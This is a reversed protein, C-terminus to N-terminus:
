LKELSDCLHELGAGDIQYYHRCHSVKTLDRSGKNEYTVLLGANRLDQIVKNMKLNKTSLYRSMGNMLATHSVAVKECSIFINNDSPIFEDWDHETILIKSRIMDRVAFLYSGCDQVKKIREMHNRQRKNQLLIDDEISGSLIALGNKELFYRNFIENICCLYRAYRDGRIIEMKGRRRAADENFCYDKVFRIIEKANRVIEVQFAMRMEEMIKRNEQLFSIKEWNVENELFLQIERDQVSYHGDLYESTILINPAHADNEVMRVLMDKIESQQKRRYQEERPHFDDVLVNCGECNKMVNSIRSKREIFEVTAFPSCITKVLTSKGKGSEGYLNCIFEIPYGAELFIGKLSDNQSMMFLPMSVGPAAEKINLMVSEWGQIQPMYKEANIIHINSDAWLVNEPLNNTIATNGSVFVTGNGINRWGRGSIAIYREGEIQAEQSELFEQILKRQIPRLSADACNNCIEHWSKINFNNVEVIDNKGYPHLIELKYRNTEKGCDLIISKSKLIPVFDSVLKGEAFLQGDDSFSFKSAM